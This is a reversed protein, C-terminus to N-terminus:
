LELHHINIRMMLLLMGMQSIVEKEAMVRFMQLIKKELVPSRSGRENSMMMMM